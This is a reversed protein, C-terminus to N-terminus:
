TLPKNEYSCFFLEKLSWFQCPKIYTITSLNKERIAFVSQLNIKHLTSHKFKPTSHQLFLDTQFHYMLKHIPVAEHFSGNFGGKLVSFCLQLKLKICKFVTFKTAPM